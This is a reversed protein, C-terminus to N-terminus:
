CDGSVAKKENIDLAHLYAEERSDPRMREAFATKLPTASFAPGLGWM